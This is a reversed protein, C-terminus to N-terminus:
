NGKLLEFLNSCRQKPGQLTHDKNFFVRYNESEWMCGGVASQRGDRVSSLAGFSTLLRILFFKLIADNLSDAVDETSKLPRTCRTAVDFAAIGVYLQSAPKCM